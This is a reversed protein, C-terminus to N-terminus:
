SETLSIGIVSVIILFAGLYQVVSLSENLIIIAFIHSFVGEMSFIIAADSSRTFGQAYNQAIKALTTAFVATIILAVIVDQNIQSIAFREEFMTLPASFLVVALTQGFALMVPDNNRAYNSILVIEMAFFIACLFVFLDGINVEGSFGSILYLGLFALIIWLVEKETIKVRYLIYAIAPTLVVYTSTIFGANTATTFEIGITQTTYGLFVVIGIMLGIKIQNFDSKRLLFPIFLLSAIAFRITNFTIPSISNLAVKIVPFTIGWIFAVSLLILDAYIRKM